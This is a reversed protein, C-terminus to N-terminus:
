KANPYVQEGKHLLVVSFKETKFQTNLKKALSIAHGPNSFSVKKYKPGPYQVLMNSTKLNIPSGEFYVAWIGDSALVQETKYTAKDTVEVLITPKPRSMENDGCNNVMFQTSLTTLQKTLYWNGGDVEITQPTEETPNSQLLRLDLMLKTIDGHLNKADAMNWVFDSASTAECQAVRDIFKRIYLGSM